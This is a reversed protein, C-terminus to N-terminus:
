ELVRKAISVSFIGDDDIRQTIKTFGASEVLQDMELQTRRRMVWAQGERHSTLARAIMELQPHWPQNTYILYGGEPLASALGALSQTILANDAFLEYLGSVIGISPTPTIQATSAQDFADGTTFTTIDTLGKEKILQQGQEVNLESYDRLLISDPKINSTEIAELVYRGHGAAIDLINIPMNNNKLWQIVLRLCEELHVKRQRIGQWGISNLYHQDIWQGLSSTGMPQNRYVYDLTSGSDFGTQHGLRIGESLIGALQLSWRYLQWYLGQWSNIPYPVALEDAEVKTYSQQHANLMSLQQQPSAFLRTIFDRIKSTALERHLEGLTDHYFGPLLHKEKIVSSLRAFFAHQPQHHVVFDAGSILLQTPVAIAAADAVVREATDYLGLLVNAAIPRTILPDTNYSAIRKPDHTLFKAKVYSNVFFLGKFKYWLKIATRALPIYLKIKFAPSALVLCRINPAYDHVWTAAVVAGVSQGIIAINNINIQYTSTIHEIFTQLDRVLTGFDPSFGRQGPSQGHGRADWAFFDFENLDLEEVLHAMRGSHEHGRHLLVIAQKEPAKKAPWYRYFLAVGDHTIFHKEM